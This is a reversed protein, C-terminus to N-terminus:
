GVVDLDHRSTKEFAFDFCSKGTIFRCGHNHGLGYDSTMAIGMRIRVSSIQTRMSYWAWVMGAAGIPFRM